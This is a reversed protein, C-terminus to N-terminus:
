RSVDRKVIPMNALSPRGFPACILGIESEDIVLLAYHCARQKTFPISSHVLNATYLFGKKDGPVHKEM